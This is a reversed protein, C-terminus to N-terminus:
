RKMYGTSSGLLEGGESYYQMIYYYTGNNANWGTNFDYADGSPTWDSLNTNNSTYFISGDESYISYNVKAVSTFNVCGKLTITLNGTTSAFSSLVTCSAQSITATNLRYDVEADKTGDNNKDLDASVRIQYNHSESLDTFTYTTSTSDTGSNMSYPYSAVQTGNEEDYLSIIFDDSQMMHYKDRITATVALTNIGPNVRVSVRPLENMEEVIITKSKQGIKTNTLHGGSYEYAYVEVRYNGGQVMKGPANDLVIPNNNASVSDYYLINTGLPAIEYGYDTKYTANTGLMVETNSSDFVRYFMRMNMGDCGDVAAHIVGTKNNYNQYLWTPSDINIIIDGNTKFVYQYETQNKEYDFLSFDVGDNQKAYVMAYYNHSDELGRITFTVTGTGDGAANAVIKMGGSSETDSDNLKDGTTYYEYTTGNDDYTYKSLPILANNNDKDYLKLYITEDTFGHVTGKTNFVLSASNRGISSVNDDKAVGPLGSGTHFDAVKFNKSDIGCDMQIPVLALKEVNYYTGGKHIGTADLELDAIAYDKLAYAAGDGLGQECLPNELYNLSLKTLDFGVNTGSSTAPLVFSNAHTAITQTGKLMSPSYVLSNTENVFRYDMTYGMEESFGETRLAWATTDGNVKADVTAKDTSVTYSSDVFSEMGYVGTGYYASVSIKVDQETLGATVIPEYDLYAFGYYNSITTTGNQGATMVATSLELPVPDFVLSRTSDTASTITVRLAAVQNIQDGQLTLKIRYGGEDQIGLTNKEGKIMVGEVKYDNNSDHKINTANSATFTSTKLSVHPEAKVFASANQKVETDGYSSYVSDVLRYSVETDYFYDKNIDTFTVDVFDTNWEYGSADATYLATMEQTNQATLSVGDVANDYNQYVNMTFFPAADYGSKIAQDADTIRYKWVNTVNSGSSSTKWLYREVNPAQRELSFVSSRYYPTISASSYICRPYDIENANIVGDTQVAYRIFYCNGREFIVKGDNDINATPSLPNTDSLFVTWEPVAIGSSTDSLAITKTYDPEILDGSDHKMWNTQYLYTEDTILPEGTNQGVKYIYYTVSLADSWSYDTLVKLGVTTDDYLAADKARTEDLLNQYSDMSLADDKSILTVTTAKNPNNSETHRKEVEFKFTTTDSDWDLENTYDTYSAKSTYDESKLVKIYFTGGGAIRSDGAMGFDADTLVFDEDTGYNKSVGGRETFVNEGFMSTHNSLDSDGVVHANGLQNNNEDFLAFTITEMNQAEYLASGNEVVEDATTIGYFVRFLDSGSANAQYNWYAAMLTPAGTKVNIGALYAGKCANRDATGLSSWSSDTTNVAGSVNVSYTTDRRLGDQKFYYYTVDAGIVGSPATAAETIEYAIPDGAESVFTVVLPYDASVHSVLKDYKDTVEIYGEISDYTHSVNIFTATPYESENISVVYSNASTLEVTKENDAFLVVVRGYYSQNEDVDFTVNQLSTVEKSDVLTGSGADVSVTNYLEYRYGIIGSQEDVLGADLALTVTKYRDSPIATAKVGSVDLKQGMSDLYYPTVKLTKVEKHVDAGVSSGDNAVLNILRVTYDTNPSITAGGSLHSEAKFTITEGDTYVTTDLNSIKNGNAEYLAIGYTEILSDESKKTLITISDETVQVCDITLGLADTEFVKTLFDTEFTGYDTSYTGNVVLVYETDPLLVSSKVVANTAGRVITGTTIKEHTARNYITWTIDNELMDNPDSIMLNMSVSNTGIVYEETELSVKPAQLQEVAAIGDETAATSANAGAEGPKGDYGWDGGDGEIGDLGTTGAMGNAGAEGENGDAGMEGGDGSVGTIGSQGDQGNVVNFTPIKVQEEDEDLVLNSSADIVMDDLSLVQEGDCEFSKALLDLRAGGDSVLYADQSITQYTGQQHILRVIGGDVYSVQVYDDLVVETEDSLHIKIQPSVIMYSNDAIKWVFEQLQMADGLYSMSYSMGDKYLTTKDSVGYYTVQEKEIESLSMVVGKTFSTLSGDNFHVFQETTTKVSNGTSDKFSVTTGFQKRYKSGSSFYYQENVNTTIESKDSPVLIFGDGAFKLFSHNYNVGTLVGIIVLLIMVASIIIALQKNKM